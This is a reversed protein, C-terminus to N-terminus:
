RSRKSSCRANLLAPFVEQNTNSFAADMLSTNGGRHGRRGGLTQNDGGSQQHLLSGVVVSPSGDGNPAHIDAGAKLLAPIIVPNPNNGAAGFLPTGSPLNEAQADAGASVLAAVVEPNKNNAAALYLPTAEYNTEDPANADAARDIETQIERPTGSKVLTFFDAIEYQAIVIAKGNEISGDIKDCRRRNNGKLKWGGNTV